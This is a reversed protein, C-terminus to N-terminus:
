ERRQVNKEGYRELFAERTMWGMKPTGESPTRTTGYAARLVRFGLGYWRARLPPLDLITFGAKALPGHFLTVAFVAQAGQLEPHTQLAQAVDRLSRQYAKYTATLNRSALGVLRTSNLHLEATPTGPPLPLPPPAHDLAAVRMVADFRGSLDIIGERQAYRDEVARQYLHHLLDRPEAPRLDRLEGAPVARYGRAKLDPLVARLDALPVRLLVGPAAERAPAPLPAIGAQRLKRLAGGTQSPAALGWYRVPQGSLAELRTPQIPGNWGAVEHGAQLARWLDDACEHSAKLSVLLTARVGQANLMELTAAFDAASEIPVTLGVAPDGPHGGHLSGFAGARLLLPWLTRRSM